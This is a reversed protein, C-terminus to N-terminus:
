DAAIDLAELRSTIEEGPRFEVDFLDALENGVRGRVDTQTDPHLGGDFLVRGKPRDILYSPGPFRIRGPVDAM